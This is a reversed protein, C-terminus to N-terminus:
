RLPRSIRFCLRESCTSFTRGSTISLLSRLTVRSPIEAGSSGPYVLRVWYTIKRVPSRVLVRSVTRWWFSTVATQDVLLPSGMLRSALFIRFM